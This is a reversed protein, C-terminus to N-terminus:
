AEQNDELRTPLEGMEEQDGDREVPLFLSYLEMTGRPPPAAECVLNVKKNLDTGWVALGKGPVQGHFRKPTSFIPSGGTTLTVRWGAQGERM